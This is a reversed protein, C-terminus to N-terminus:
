SGSYFIHRGIKVLRTMAGSWEPLVYDAHYHTATAIAQVEGDGAIARSALTKASQWAKGQRPQDSRGDCTFSFQCANRREANQYVVECVTDPYFPSKVRNLVVKAVALRGIESESRAEFYIARSLCQHEAVERRLERGTRWSKEILDVPPSVLRTMPDKSRVTGTEVLIDSKASVLSARVPREAVPLEAFEILPESSFLSGKRLAPPLPKSAIDFEVAAFGSTVAASGVHYGAVAFLGVLAAGAVTL